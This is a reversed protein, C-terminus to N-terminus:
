NWRSLLSLCSSPFEFCAQAVSHSQRWFFTLVFLVDGCCVGVRCCIGYLSCHPTHTFAKFGLAISYWSIPNAILIRRFLFALHMHIIFFSAIGFLWLPPCAGYLQRRVDTDEYCPCAWCMSLVPPRCSDEALTVCWAWGCLFRDSVMVVQSADLSHLVSRAYALWQVLLIFCM